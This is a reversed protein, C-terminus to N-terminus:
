KARKIVVKTDIQAILVQVEKASLVSGVTPEVTNVLQDVIYFRHDNRKQQLTITKSKM